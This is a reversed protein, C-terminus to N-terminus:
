ARRRVLYGIGAGLGSFGLAVVGGAYVVIPLGVALAIAIAVSPQALALAFSTAVLLAAEVGADDTRRDYSLLFFGIGLAIALVLWRM